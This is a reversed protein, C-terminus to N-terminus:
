ESSTVHDLALRIGDQFDVQPEYGLMRRAKDISYDLNLTMFKIQAGTLLPPSTAGCLRALAEIPRVLARALWEPVSPPHPKDLYDAITNIFEQRTVLRGDRINFTEGLAAPKEIALMIAEVLNGVYTNNLLRDGAGIFKM